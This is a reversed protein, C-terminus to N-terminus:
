KRITLELPIKAADECLVDWTGTYYAHELEVIINGKYVGSSPFDEKGWSDDITYLRAIEDGSSGGSGRVKLTEAEKDGPGQYTDPAHAPGIDRGGDPWASWRVSLDVIWQDQRNRGDLFTVYAGIDIEAPAHLEAKVDEKPIDCGAHGEACDAWVPGFVILSEDAADIKQEVVAADEESWICDEVTAQDGLGAEEASICGALTTSLFAALVIVLINRPVLAVKQSM